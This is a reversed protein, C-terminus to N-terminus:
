GLINTYGYKECLKGWVPSLRFCAGAMAAYGVGFMYDPFGLELFLAPTIPNICNSFVTFLSFLLMVRFITAKRHRAFFSHM